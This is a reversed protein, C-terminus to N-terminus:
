RDLGKADQYGRVEAVELLSRNQGDKANVDAKAEVLLQTCAVHGETVSGFLPTEGDEAM